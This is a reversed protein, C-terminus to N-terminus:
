FYTKLKMVIASLLYFLAKPLPLKEEKRYIEWEYKLLSLKNSSISNNHVRYASLSEQIGVADTKKLLKLWLAYDQRKRIEPMYVKGFFRVDYIVTLCGIPNKFLANQYTVRKKAQIKGLHTQGDERVRDYSTFTFPHQGSQMYSLQVELKPPYWLDDCDLFAIMDGKAAEIGKNRAIGAGSNEELFILKIRPDTQAQDRLIDKSRDSSCDDILIHEWHEYSQARVSEICSVIYSEANHVPTIVSVLPNM